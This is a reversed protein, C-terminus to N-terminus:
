PIEFSKCTYGNDPCKDIFNAQINELNCDVFSIASPAGLIEKNKYFIVSVVYTLQSNKGSYVEVKTVDKLCFTIM